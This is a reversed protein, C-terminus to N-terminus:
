SLNELWLHKPNLKRLAATLWNRSEFSLRPSVNQFDSAVSSDEPRVSKYLLVLESALVPIGALSSIIMKEYPLTISIDRRYLFHNNEVEDFLLEIFDPSANPNKCWIIHVPSDIWEGKQWPILQGQIAKELTWGQL